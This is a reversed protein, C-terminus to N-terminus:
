DKMLAFSSPSVSLGATENDRLPLLKFRVLKNTSWMKTKNPNNNNQFEVHLLEVVDDNRSKMGGTSLM